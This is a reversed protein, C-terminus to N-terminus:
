LGAGKAQPADRLKERIKQRVEHTDKGRHSSVCHQVALEVVEKEDGAIEITCNSDTLYARCDFRKKM